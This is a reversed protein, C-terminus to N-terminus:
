LLEFLDKGLERSDYSSNKLEIISEMYKRNAGVLYRQSQQYLMMAVKTSFSSPLDINNKGQPSYTIIQTKSIQFIFKSQFSWMKNINEIIFPYDSTLGNEWKDTKSIVKHLKWYKLDGEKKDLDFMLIPLIFCRFYYRFEENNEILEKIKGVQHLPTGNISIRNGFRELELNKVFDDVFEDMFPLRWFQIAIFSKLLYIGEKSIIEDSLTENRISNFFEAFANELKGYATEIFDSRINNINITNRHKEFLITKPTQKDAKFENYKKDFVQLKGDESTFGRLFLQPIYHHNISLGM